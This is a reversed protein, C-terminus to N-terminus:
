KAQLNWAHVVPDCNIDDLAHMLAPQKLLQVESLPLLGRGDNADFEPDRRELYRVRQAKVEHAPLIKCVQGSRSGLREYGGDPREAFASPL